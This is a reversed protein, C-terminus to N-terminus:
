RLPGVTQSTPLRVGMQRLFDVDEQRRVTTAEAVRTLNVTHWHDCLLDGNTWVHFGAAKADLCFTFDEAPGSAFNERIAHEPIRFIPRAMKTLVERRVFM